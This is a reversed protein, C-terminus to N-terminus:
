TLLKMQVWIHRWSMIKLCLTLRTKEISYLLPEWFISRGHQLIHKAVANFYHSDKKM